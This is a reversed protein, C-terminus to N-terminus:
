ATKLGPVGPLPVVSLTLDFAQSDHGALAARSTAGLRVSEVAPLAEFAEVYSRITVAPDSVEGFRIHGRLSITCRGGDRVMDLTSLRVSEPTTQSIIEMMAAWDPTQDMAKRLRREADTLAARAAIAEQRVAMPGQSRQLEATAAALKSRESGLTSYADIAEYGVYAMAVAAGILLANRASRMKRAQRAAAPLVRISLNPSSAMARILGGTSSDLADPGGTPGATTFDTPEFPFGSLRAIAEGLGPVAAGPGALHLRIRVRDAEAVGFRLSQKIETSLRQLIPQLHPLLASGALTPHGAILADPAPVGVALFLTRAQQYDLQVPAAEPARARLPRCLVEALTETGSSITRAFCLRGHSGVAFSTSHEGIWAVAAIENPDISTTCRRIADAMAVAEAPVLADVSLGARTIAECLASTREESDACALIHRQAPTEPASRGKKHARDVFLTCTASPADETPFDAINTLALTAAQEAGAANISTACSTLGTVSGPAAYI